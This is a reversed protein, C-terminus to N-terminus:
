HGGAASFTGKKRHSSSVFIKKQCGLIVVRLFSDSPLFTETSFLGITSNIVSTCVINIYYVVNRSRFTSSGKKLSDSTWVCVDFEMNTKNGATVSSTGRGTVLRYKRSLM